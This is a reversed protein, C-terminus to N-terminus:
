AAIAEEWGEERPALCVAAPLRQLTRRRPREALVQLCQPWRQAPWHLAGSIQPALAEQLLKWPRWWTATRERDLRSWGDGMTRRLRKDLVLAYLLKGHLWLEALPSGQRARLTDVDLLSKGRKIALAVQWRTRYLALITDAAFAAPPLSTWVVVWGALWLARPSPTKGKKSARQRSTARAKNAQEESLRYAHVWGQLRASAPGSWVPLTHRTTPAQSQLTARLDLPTGDAQFLPMHHPNCRVVVAAGTQV